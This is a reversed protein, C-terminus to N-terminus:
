SRPPPAGTRNTNRPPVSAESAGKIRASIRRAQGGTLLPTLDYKYTTQSSAKNRDICHRNWVYAKFDAVLNYQNPLKRLVIRNSNFSRGRGGAIPSTLKHDGGNLSDRNHHAVVLFHSNPDGSYARTRNTNKITGAIELSVGVPNGREQMIRVNTPHLNTAQLPSCMEALSATPLAFVGALLLGSHIVKNFLMRFTDTQKQNMMVNAEITNSRSGRHKSLAEM